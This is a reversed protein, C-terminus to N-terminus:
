VREGLQITRRQQAFPCHQATHSYRTSRGCTASAPQEIGHTVCDCEVKRAGCVTLQQRRQEFSVIKVRGIILGNSGKDRATIRPHQDRAPPRHTQGNCGLV